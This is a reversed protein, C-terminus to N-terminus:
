CVFHGDGQTKAPIPSNINHYSMLFRSNRISLDPIQRLTPGCNIEQDLIFGRGSAVIDESEEGLALWCNTWKEVPFHM